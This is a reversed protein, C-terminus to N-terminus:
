HLWVPLGYVVPAAGTLYKLKCEDRASNVAQVTSMESIPLFTNSRSKSAPVHASDLHLHKLVQESLRDIDRDTVDWLNATLSPCGGVMYHWATGTRDFDGQERLHGSSCGWLMTTACQPLHRIKHSRIYQEAGGHGFYLVLDYDKLAACMELETPARGVIGKWGAKKVMEDVLPRFHDETRKLDGSPNLIYFTRRSNVTRRTDVEANDMTVSQTLSPRLHTGMAVQDLLFSLSPIRSVSRGRLIPISEWPFSQVNKDLALFIHDTKDTPDHSKAQRAEVKELAMRVDLAIQDIDLESLAVPVGHFQYIDLIFYVLDEVEEDKCKSSLTAFCELLAEDLHVQTANAAKANPGGCLASRFIRELRERFDVLDTKSSQTRPSLITKFAGLWVFEINVCLEEMRKDLAHREAWWALKGEKTSVDKANRAGNDSCKIIDSLEEVATDFTWIDDEGERRGQRDLPLCFVIPEHDRQHRSIFMTNRDESVNISVVAWEPPLTDLSSVEPVLLPNSQYKTKIMDWYSRLQGDHDDLDDTLSRDSANNPIPNSEISPWKLDDHAIDMFKCDIAELLERQLTISSSSALVGAAASTVSASGQGLSTQFARLLALALCAQRIGEIRGSGSVLSLADLFAQEARVLVSQISLRTSQRDNVREESNGMPMAVASETLSSMFLDTKFQTFAEHLAIRGELLLEEAKTMSSSPLSKIQALIAECEEKGGAERLLWAHQRLVHALAIPLLPEKRAISKRPTSGARASSTSAALLASKKPTPLMAEAVVFVEDLGKIENSASEFVQHAEELMEQKSLLDGQIRRLEIADPADALSLTEAAKQLRGEVEEYKRLRFLIEAERAGVRAGMGGSKVSECVSSAVKLFYECDKVSGRNAFATALELISDLLSHAVHWQLSHLHKGSFHSVQSPPPVKEDKSPEDAGKSTPEYTPKAAPVSFPDDNSAIDSTSKAMEPSPLESAIRCVTDSARSWLRFAASLQMIAAAANDQAAYIAAIASRALAARELIGCRDVVRVLISGTKVAQIDQNLLNAEDFVEQAKAIHGTGALYSTRRLLLEVRTGLSVLVKSEAVVKNAQSFVLGARSLKGLKFYETALQASRQVYDDVLDERNRQFARLLKLVEIKGLAHGLLGLLTALSALLRTLRRLDDFVLAPTLSSRRKTTGALIAKGVTKTAAVKKQTTNISKPESVARTSGRTPRKQVVAKTTTSKGLPQKKRGSAEVGKVPTVMADTATSPPLVISRLAQVARTSAEAVAQSPDSETHYAQLAKLVLTYAQYENKYITLGDDEDCDSILSLRGAEALLAPIKDQGQGSAAIAGLIMAITRSRRISQGDNYVRLVAEGLEIVVKAVESKWANEELILMLREGVAGVAGSPCGTSTMLDIIESAHGAAQEPEFIILSSLRSIANNLETFVSFAEVIPKTAAALALEKLTTPAQSALCRSYATFMTQKEGMKQCCGALLEWRRGLSEKLQILGQDEPEDKGLLLTEEAWGCSLTVLPMALDTSGEKYFKGGANYACSSLCRLWDLQDRLNTVKRTQDFVKRARALLSTSSTHSHQSLRLISDMTGTVVDHTLTTDLAADSVLTEAFGISEQLWKEVPNVLSKWRPDGPLKDLVKVCSRRVREWARIAKGLVAMSEQDNPLSVIAHAFLALVKSKLNDGISILGASSEKDSFLKDFALSVKALDGCIRAIEAEPNNIRPPLTEAPDQSSQENSSPSPTSPISFSTPFSITSSATMLSLARDIIGTDALRRGLGIWMEMLGLWGKGGFWGGKEEGRFGVMWEVWDVLKGITEAADRLKDKAEDAGVFTVIARHTTDWFQTPTNKSDSSSSITISLSILALHRLHLYATSTPSLALTSIHRYFTHLLPTVGPRPLSLAISLPNLQSEITSPGSSQPIALASAAEDSGESLVVLATWASMMASFLVSQIGDSLVTNAEPSPLSAAELWEKPISSVNTSPGARVRAAGESRSRPASKSVVSRKTSRSSSSQGRSPGSTKAKTAAKGPPICKPTYLRLVSPGAVLLLEISRRYMGMALCKGVVGQCAKEIEVGKGGNGLYGDTELGRLVKFAVECTDVLSSVREETWIEATDLSASAEGTSTSTSQEDGKSPANCRFGSQQAVSLSKISSNIAQMASKARDSPKLTTDTERAWPLSEELSTPPQGAKGKGKDSMTSTNTATVPRRSTTFSSSAPTRSSSAVPLRDKGRATAAATARSKSESPAITLKSLGEVLEEADGGDQVKTRSAAAIRAPRKSVTASSSTGARSGTTTSATKAVAM